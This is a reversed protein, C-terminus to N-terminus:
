VRKSNIAYIGDSEFEVVRRLNTLTLSFFRRPSTKYRPAYTEPFFFVRVARIAPLNRLTQRKLRSFFDRLTHQSLFRFFLFTECKGDEVDGRTEAPLVHVALAAPHRMGGGLSTQLASGEREATFGPGRGQGRLLM